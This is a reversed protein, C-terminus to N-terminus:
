DCYVEIDYKEALVKLRDLYIYDKYNEIILYVGAKKGTMHSYHLSQGISEAWKEAFDVEWAHTDSLCDVRTRDSLVYEVKGQMKACFIDAYYSEKHFHKGFLLMPLLLAILKM